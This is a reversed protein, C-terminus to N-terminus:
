GCTVVAPGRARSCAARPWAAARLLSALAAPPQPPASRPQPARAAAAASLRNTTAPPQRPQSPHSLTEGTVSLSWCPLLLTFSPAPSAPCGAKFGWAATSHRPGQQLQRSAALRGWAPSRAAWVRKCLEFQPHRLLYARRPPAPRGGPPAAPVSLGGDVARQRQRCPGPLLLVRATPRNANPNTSRPSTEHRPHSRASQVLM